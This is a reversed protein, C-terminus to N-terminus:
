CRGGSPASMVPGGAKSALRSLEEFVSPSTHSKLVCVLLDHPGSASQCDHSLDGSQVNTCRVYAHILARPAGSPHFWHVNELDALRATATRWGNWETQVVILTDDPSVPDTRNWAAEEFSANQVVATNASMM